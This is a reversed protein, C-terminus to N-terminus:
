YDNNIIYQNICLDNVAILGQMITIMIYHLGLFFDLRLFPHRIPIFNKSGSVRMKIVIKWKQLSYPFSIDLMRNFLPVNSFLIIYNRHFPVHSNIYFNAHLFYNKLHYLQITLNNNQFLVKFAHLLPFSYLILSHTAFSVLIAKRWALGFPGFSLQKSFWTHFTEKALFLGHDQLPVQNLFFYNLIM